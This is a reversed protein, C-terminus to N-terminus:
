NGGNEIGYEQTSMTSYDTLLIFEVLGDDDSHCGIMANCWAQADGYDAFERNFLSKDTDKAIRVSALIMAIEM